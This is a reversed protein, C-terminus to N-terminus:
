YDSCSFLSETLLALFKGTQWSDTFQTYYLAKSDHDVFFVNINNTSKDVNVASLYSGQLTTGSYITVGQNFGSSNGAMEVINRDKNHYYIRWDQANDVNVVALNSEPHVAQAKKSIV